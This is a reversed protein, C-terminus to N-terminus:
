DRNRRRPRDRPDDEDDEDDEDRPRRSTSKRRTGKVIRKQGPMQFNYMGGWVLVGLVAILAVIALVIQMSRGEEVVILENAPAVPVAVVPTAVIPTAVIPAFDNLKAPQPATPRSPTPKPTPAVVPPVYAPKTPIPAPEVPPIATLNLLEDKATWGRKEFAEDLFAVESVGCDCRSWGVARLSKFSVQAHVKPRADAKMADLIKNGFDFKVYFNPARIPTGFRDTVQLQKVKTDETGVRITQDVVGTIIMAFTYDKGITENAKMRFDRYRNIEAFRESGSGRIMPQAPANPEVTSASDRKYTAVIEGKLGLLNVEEVVCIGWTASAASAKVTGRVRAAVM